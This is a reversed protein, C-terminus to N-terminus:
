NKLKMTLEKINKDKLIFLLILFYSFVGIIIEVFTALIDSKLKFFSNFLLIILYMALGSIFYKKIRKLLFLINFDKKIFYIIVLNVSLEALLTGISAGLAGLDSILTLNILLNVIAGITISITFEKNRGTPILYQLGLVNSCSIIVIIPSVIKILKSVALFQTGLFWYVFNDAIALLGFMLPISLMMLIEFSDEIYKKLTNNDGKSYMNAIRPLMITGFTTVFTLALKVIKQSQDYYGVEIVSSFIGIMVRDLITYISVAIQPIFLLICPKIHKTIKLNKIYKFSIIQFINRWLTLQGILTSFSGIMAYKWLDSKSKVFIFIAIVSLLKVMINRKATKKFNETGTLLWSIDIASSLMYLSQIVLIERYKYFVELNFFMFIMFTYLTITLVFQLIFIEFFTKSLKKKDDRNYAVERSAYFPIGLTGILIFYQVISLTFGNEGIAEAGLVRSIYPTTIIPTIVTLLQYTLNYLYNKAIKKDM